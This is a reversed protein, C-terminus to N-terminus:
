SIRGLRCASRIARAVAGYEQESLQLGPRQRYAKVMFPRNEAFWALLRPLDTLHVKPNFYALSNNKTVLAHAGTESVAAVYGGYM